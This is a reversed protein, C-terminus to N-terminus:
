GPALGTDERYQTAKRADIIANGIKSLREVRFPASRIHPATQSESSISSTFVIAFNDGQKRGSGSTTPAKSMPHDQILKGMETETALEPLLQVHTDVLREAYARWKDTMTSSQPVGGTTTDSKGEVPKGDSKGEM